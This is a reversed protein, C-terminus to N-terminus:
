SKGWFATAILLRGGKSILMVTPVEAIGSFSRDAVQFGGHVGYFSSCFWWFFRSFLGFINSLSDSFM